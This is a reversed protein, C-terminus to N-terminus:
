ASVFRFHQNSQEAGLCDWLQLPAGEKPADSKIDLCKTLSHGARIEYFNGLAFIPAFVQNSQTGCTFLILPTGNATGAGAVDLCKGSMSKIRIIGTQGGDAVEWLQADAAPSQCATQTVTGSPASTLCKSSSYRSQIQFLLTQTGDTDATATGALGTIMTGALFFATLLTSLRGMSRRM